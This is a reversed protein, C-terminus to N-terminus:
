TELRGASADPLKTEGKELGRVKRQGSSLRKKGEQKRHRQEPSVHSILEMGGRGPLRGQVGPAPGPDRSETGLRQATLGERQTTSM